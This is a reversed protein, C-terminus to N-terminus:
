SGRGRECNTSADCGCPHHHKKRQENLAFFCRKCYGELILTSRATPFNSPRAWRASTKLLSGRLGRLENDLESDEEKESTTIWLSLAGLNITGYKALWQKQFRGYEVM